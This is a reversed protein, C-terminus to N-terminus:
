LKPSRPSFLSSCPELALWCLCVLHHRHVTCTLAFFDQVLPDHSLCLVDFVNLAHKTGVMALGDMTV